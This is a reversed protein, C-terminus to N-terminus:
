RFMAEIEKASFFAHPLGKEPGLTPICTGDPLTEHEALMAWKKKAEVNPLSVFFRGKVV